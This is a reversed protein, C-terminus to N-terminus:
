YKASGTLSISYSYITADQVSYDYVQMEGQGRQYFGSLSISSSKTQWSLSMSVGYMDVHLDYDTGSQNVNPTNAMNTFFGLRFPFSPTVYYEAGIAGNYTYKKVYKQYYRNNRCIDAILDASLLLRKSPFWAFGLAMNIPLESDDFEENYTTYTVETIGTNDGKEKYFKQGDQTHSLIQGWALRFGIAITDLPMYQIGIRETVGYADETIYQNIHEYENDSFVILQNAIQEIRRKMFYVTAGISLSNGLFAAFSLGGLLTNDTINYNFTFSSIESSLNDYKQDQDLIDNNINLITFAIKYPGLSQIVGFFSPYFSSIEQTYSENVITKEFEIYKYKYSNVSLSIQNDIAFVIGAPNYYAGSPDDSVATYAGGLGTARGGILDNIYNFDNTHLGGANLSFPIECIVIILFIIGAKQILNKSFMEINEM